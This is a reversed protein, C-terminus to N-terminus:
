YGMPTGIRAYLETQRATNELLDDALKVAGPEFITITSSGGFAFYGKEAGKEVPQGPSYTQHISGVCTAGIEAILVLGRDPTELQTLTRKNEWLFHLHRRLAIPSVSYLPGDITRTPGPIGACPFHYRHYDVPCLRSLVLAGDSFRETLEDDGLLGRLDFKQGKVFFSDIESIKPFGLHRGDAPFVVPSVADIPRAAPKLKRFFFENFTKFSEVPEAFDSPDLGYEAIFPVIKERSAPQNMRQGYWKSFGARKILANLPLAGLPNEYVFRLFGEGYVKETETQGTHRNFYRIEEM